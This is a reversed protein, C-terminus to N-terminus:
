YFFDCNLKKPPFFVWVFGLIKLEFQSLRSKKTKNFLAKWKVRTLLLQVALDFLILEQM